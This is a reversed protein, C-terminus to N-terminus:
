RDPGVALMTGPRYAGPRLGEDATDALAMAGACMQLHQILVPSLVM